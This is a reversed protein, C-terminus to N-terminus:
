VCVCVCFIRGSKTGYIIISITTKCYKVRINTPAHILSVSSTAHTHYKTVCAHVGWNEWSCHYMDATHSRVGPLASSSIHPLSLSVFVPSLLSSLSLSLAFNDWEAETSWVIGNHLQLTKLTDSGGSRNGDDAVDDNDYHALCGVSLFRHFVSM